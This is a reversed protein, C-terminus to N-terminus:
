AAGAHLGHQFVEVSDAHVCELLISWLLTDALRLKTRLSLKPSGFVRGALARYAVRMVRVRATAEETMNGTATHITGLHKYSRVIRVAADDVTIVKQDGDDICQLGAVLEQSGRGFLRMICEAKDKSFNMKLGHKALARRCVRIMEATREILEDPKEASVMLCLGDVYTVDSVPAVDDCDVM